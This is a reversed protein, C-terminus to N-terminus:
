NKKFMHNKEMTQGIFGRLAKWRDAPDGVEGRAAAAAIANAPALAANMQALNRAFREMEGKELREKRKAAGPRSKLTKMTMTTSAASAAGGGSSALNSRKKVSNRVRVMKGLARLMDAETNRSNQANADDASMAEDDDEDDDDDDDDDDVGEWDEADDGDKINDSAAALDPLADVLGELKTNLKKGPRRRKLKKTHSKEIRSVFASHKIRQKDKKSEKGFASDLDVTNSPFSPPAGAAGTSHQAAPRANPLTSASSPTGKPRAASSVKARM